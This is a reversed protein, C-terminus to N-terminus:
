QDVKEEWSQPKWKYSKCVSCNTRVSIYVDYQHLLRVSLILLLEHDM